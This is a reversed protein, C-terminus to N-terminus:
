VHQTQALYVRKLTHLGCCAMPLHMQCRLAHSPPRCHMMCVNPILHPELSTAFCSRQEQWIICRVRCLVEFESFIAPAAAFALSNDRAGWGYNTQGLPAQCTVVLPALLGTVIGTQEAYTSIQAEYGPRCSLRASVDRFCGAPTSCATMTPTTFTSNLQSRISSMDSALMTYEILMGPLQTIPPCQPVKCGGAVSPM